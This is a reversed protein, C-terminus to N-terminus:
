EVTKFNPNDNLGFNRNCFKPGEFIKHFKKLSTKFDAQFRLKENYQTQQFVTHFFTIKQTFNSEECGLICYIYLLRRLDPALALVMCAHLMTAHLICARLRM